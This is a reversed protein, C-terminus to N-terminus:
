RARMWDCTPPWPDGRRHPSLTVHGVERGSAFQGYAPPAQISEAVCGPPLPELAADLGDLLAGLQEYQYDTVVHWGRQANAPDVIVDSAPLPLGQPAGDEVWRWQGGVLRVLGTCHIEIGVSVSNPHWRDNGAVFSGHGDGGAHNANRDIPVLQVVGEAASRGIAFHACSGNGAQNQWRDILGGWTEPTMDTTHVVTAFPAIAGGVRGAHAERRTALSWWGGSFVGMLQEPPLANNLTCRQLSAITEGSAYLTWDTDTITDLELTVRPYPAHYLQIVIAPDVAEVFGMFINGDAMTLLAADGAGPSAQEVEYIDHTALGYSNGDDGTASWPGSQNVLPTVTLTLGTDLLRCDFSAGVLDVFTIECPFSTPPDAADGEFTCLVLDHPRM